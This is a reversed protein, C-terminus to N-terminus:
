KEDDSSCTSMEPLDKFIDNESKQISVCDEHVAYGSQPDIVVEEASLLWGFCTPCKQQCQINCSSPQKWLKFLAQEEEMTIKHAFWFEVENELVKVKNLSTTISSEKVDQALCSLDTFKYIDEGKQLSYIHVDTM